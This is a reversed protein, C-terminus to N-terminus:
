RLARRTHLVHASHVTGMSCKLTKNLPFGNPWIWTTALSLLTRCSAIQNSNSRAESRFFDVCVRKNNPSMRVTQGYALSQGCSFASGGPRPMFFMHASLCVRVNGNRGCHISECGSICDVACAGHGANGHRKGSAFFREAANHRFREAASGNQLMIPFAALKLVENCAEQCEWQSQM